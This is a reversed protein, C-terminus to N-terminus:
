QATLTYVTSATTHYYSKGESSISIEEPNGVVHIPKPTPMPTQATGTGTTGTTGATGTIGATGTTGTTARAAWEVTTESHDTFHDKNFWKAQKTLGSACVNWYVNNSKPIKISYGDPVCLSKLWGTYIVMICYM